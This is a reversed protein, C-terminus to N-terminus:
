RIKTIRFLCGRVYLTYHFDARALFASIAAKTRSVSRPGANQRQTGHAAPGGGGPGANPRPDVGPCTAGVAVGSLAVAGPRREVCRPCASHSRDGRCRGASACTSPAGIGRARAGCRRARGGRAAHTAHRSGSVGGDGDGRRQGARDARGRQIIAPRFGGPSTRRKVCPLALSRIAPFPGQCGFGGPGPPDAQGRPDGASGSIWELAAEM